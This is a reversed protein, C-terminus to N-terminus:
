TWITCNLCKQGLKKALKQCKLIKGGRLLWRKRENVSIDEAETRRTGASKVGLRAGRDSQTLYFLLLRLSGDKLKGIVKQVLPLRM